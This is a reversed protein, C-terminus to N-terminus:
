NNICNELNEAAFVGSSWVYTQPVLRCRNQDFHLKKQISPPPKSRPFGTSNNVLIIIYSKKKKQVSPLSRFWPSQRFSIIGVDPSRVASLAAYIQKLCVPSFFLPCVDQVCNGRSTVVSLLDDTSIEFAHNM